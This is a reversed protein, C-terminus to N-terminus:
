ARVARAAAAFMGVVEAAARSARAVTVQRRKQKQAPERSQVPPRRNVFGNIGM